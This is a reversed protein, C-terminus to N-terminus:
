KLYKFLWAASLLVQGMQSKEQRQRKQQGDSQRECNFWYIFYSVTNRQTWENTRADEAKRCSFLNVVWMKWICAQFVAQRLKRSIHPLSRIAPVATLPMYLEDLGKASILMPYAVIVVFEEKNHKKRIQPSLLCLPCLSSFSSLFCTHQNAWIYVNASLQGAWHQFSTLWDLGGAHNDPGWSGSGDGSSGSSLWPRYFRTDPAIGILDHDKPWWRVAGLKCQISFPIAALM